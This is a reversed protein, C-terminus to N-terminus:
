RDDEAEWLPDASDPQPSEGLFGDNGAASLDTVLQGGGEDFNGIASWVPPARM